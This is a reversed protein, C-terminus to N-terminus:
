ALLDVQQGLWPEPLPPRGRGEGASGAAAPRSSASSTETAGAAERRAEVAGSGVPAFAPTEPIGAFMPGLGQDRTESTSLRYRPIVRQFQVPQVRLVRDVQDNAAGYLPYFNTLRASSPASETREVGAPSRGASARSQILPQIENM